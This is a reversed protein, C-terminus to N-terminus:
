MFVINESEGNYNLNIYNEKLIVPLPNTNEDYVYSEVSKIERDGTFESPMKEKMLLVQTTNIKSLKIGREIISNFPVVTAIYIESDTQKEDGKVRDIYKFSCSFSATGLYPSYYYRKEKIRKELQDLFTKDHHSVYFRYSVCGKEGLIIEFPIQTHEEPIQFHKNSTIKMYNVTQMIKRTKKNKRVAIELNAKSFDDYYTDREIGMIAAIIGSIVTRPPVSYSLSSSNTYFKRFHAAYGEVDFILIDKKM